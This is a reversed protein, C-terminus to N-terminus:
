AGPAAPPEVPFAPPRKRARTAYWLVAALLLEGLLILWWPAVMLAGDDYRSAFFRRPLVWRGGVVTRYSDWSPVHLLIGTADLKGVVTGAQVVMWWFQAAVAAVGAALIGFVVIMRVARRM